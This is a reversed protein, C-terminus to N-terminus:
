FVIKVEPNKSALEDIYKVAEEINKSSYSLETDVYVRYEEKGNVYAIMLRILSINTM